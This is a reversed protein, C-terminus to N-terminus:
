WEEWFQAFEAAAAFTAWGTAAICVTFKVDFDFDDNTGAASPQNADRKNWSSFVLIITVTWNEEGAGRRGRHILSRAVTLVQKQSRSLCSLRPLRRPNRRPLAFATNGGRLLYSTAGWNDTTTLIM